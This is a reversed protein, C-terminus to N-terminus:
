RYCFILSSEKGSILRSYILRLRFDDCKQQSLFFTIHIDLQLHISAFLKPDPMLNKSPHLDLISGDCSCFPRSTVYSTAELRKQGREKIFCKLVKQNFFRKEFINGGSLILTHSLLYESRNQLTHLAYQQSFAYMERVITRCFVQFLSLKMDSLFHLVQSFSQTVITKAYNKAYNALFSTHKKCQHMFEFYCPIISPISVKGRWYYNYYIAKNRGIEQICHTAYDSYCVVCCRKSSFLSFIPRLM